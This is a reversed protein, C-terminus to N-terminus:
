LPLLKGTVKNIKEEADPGIGLCTVTGPQVVTHGADTILAAVLKAAKCKSQYALLEGLDAVGLVIKKMGQKRWEKVKAAPSRFAAEVAAHAAQAAAKGTPLALDRRLLIVQKYSPM